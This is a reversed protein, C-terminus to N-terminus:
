LAGRWDRGGGPGTRRVSGPLPIIAGVGFMAGAGGATFLSGSDRTRGVM